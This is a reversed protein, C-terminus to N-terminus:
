ELVVQAKPQPASLAIENDLSEKLKRLMEEKRKQANAQRLEMTEKRKQANKEDKEDVIQEARERSEEKRDKWSKEEGAHKVYYEEERKQREEALRIIEDKAEKLGENELKNIVSEINGIVEKEFKKKGGFRNFVNGVIKQFISQKPLTLKSIKISDRAEQMDANMKSDREDIRNECDQIDKQSEKLERRREKIESDVEKIKEDYSKLLEDINEANHEKALERKYSSFERKVKKRLDQYMIDNGFMAENLAVKM